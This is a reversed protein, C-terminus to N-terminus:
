VVSKRDRSISSRLNIDAKEKNKEPWIADMLKWKSVEGETRNLLMYAFLEACKATMWRVPKRESRVYVSFRGLMSIELKDTEAKVARGQTNTRKIVREVARRISEPTIPKLLYDLANVSFAEIAYQNYATIFVIECSYGSAYVREALELGSMGPMEIDLFLVDPKLAEVQEPVILPNSYQGLIEVNLKTLLRCIHVSTLEEDDVVIATLM